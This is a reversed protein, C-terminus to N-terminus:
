LAAVKASTSNLLELDADSLALGVGELLPGVQEPNRGSAVPATVTPNALLWAIAVSAPEVNHEDAVQVLADIVEFTAPTLYQGIMGARDGVIQERSRYKGTLLGSALSFYPMVGLDFEAALPQLNQEYDARALLNYHPQLAVPRPVDQRDAEAMWAGLQAASFNSVGIERIKGERQLAAFAAVSEELPTEEDFAHAYYLDIYDTQLRRLSEEASRKVNGAALGLRGQLKGVKTAVVLEDRKRRKLWAGLIIESDGGSAGPAWAPYVDATDLFNGGADAYADLVLHSQAEDSTWGFTNNGLCLPYVDLTSTGIQVM